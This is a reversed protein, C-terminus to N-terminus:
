WLLPLAMPANLRYFESGIAPPAADVGATITELAVCRGNFRFLGVPKCKLQTKASVHM